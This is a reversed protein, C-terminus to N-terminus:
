EGEIYVPNTLLLPKKKGMINRWIEIRYFVANPVTHTYRECAISATIRDFLGKDNIIRIEDGCQIGQTEFHLEYNEARHVTDGMMAGNLTFLIEGSVPTETVYCHGAKVAQILEEQSFSGMYIHNCPHGHHTIAIAKHTDSGGVMPVKRGQALMEQWLMLSGDNTDRWPGNWVEYADFPIDTGVKWGGLKDGPHNLVVMAGNDHAERIIRKAEETTEAEFDAVPEQVGIFNAHGHRTTWEYGPIRMLGETTKSFVNQTTSNHDTLAIAQLGAEKCLAVTELETYGGDSHCSHLHLDAKYWAAAEEELEITVTVPTDKQLVAVSLSVHWEGPEIKGAKFGPSAFEASVKCSNKQVACCGRLGAPGYLAPQIVCKPYEYDYEVRMTVSAIHIPVMFPVHIYQGKQEPAIVVERRIVNQIQIKSDM